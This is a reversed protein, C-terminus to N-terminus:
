PKLITEFFGIPGQLDEEMEETKRPKGYDLIFTQWLWAFRFANFIEALARPDCSRIRNEEMQKHFVAETYDDARVGYENRMYDRIKENHHMEMFLIHIIRVLSPDAMIYRPLGELMDRFISRESGGGVRAPPLPSYVRSEVYTFIADLISEKSPYHRYVASETIGVAGAIDRISTRDYGREAFLSVAADFIRERTPKEGPVKAPRGSKGAPSRATM